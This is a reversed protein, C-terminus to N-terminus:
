ENTAEKDKRKLSNRLKRWSITFIETDIVGGDKDLVQRCVTIGKPEEYYWTQKNVMVPTSKLHKNM